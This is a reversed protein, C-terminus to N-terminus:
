FLAEMEEEVLFLTASIKKLDGTEVLDHSSQIKSTSRSSSSVIGPTARLVASVIRASIPQLIAAKQDLKRAHGGHKTLLESVAGYM